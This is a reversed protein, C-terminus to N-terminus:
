RAPARWLEYWAQMGVHSAAQQQPCSRTVTSPSGKSTVIHWQWAQRRRVDVSGSWRTCENWKQGSQPLM